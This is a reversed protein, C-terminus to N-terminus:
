SILSFTVKRYKVKNEELVRVIDRMIEKPSKTSICSIDYAGKHKGIKGEIEINM